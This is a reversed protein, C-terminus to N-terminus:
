IFVAPYFKTIVNRYSMAMLESRIDSLSKNFLHIPQM